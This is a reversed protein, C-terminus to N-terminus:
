VYDGLQEGSVNPRQGLRQSSVANRHSLYSDILGLWSAPHTAFSLAARLTTPLATAALCLHPSVTKRERLMGHPHFNSGVSQSGSRHFWVSVSPASYRNGPQRM